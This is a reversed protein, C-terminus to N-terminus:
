FNFCVGHASMDNEDKEKFKSYFITTTITEILKECPYGMM